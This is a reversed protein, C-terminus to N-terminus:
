RIKEPSYIIDELANRGQKDTIVFTFMWKNLRIGEAKVYPLKLLVKNWGKKLRIVSPKRSSFNENALDTENNIVKGSNIWVPPLIEEDNLWVKSGKRDWCGADPAKDCESRGYNQFEILAGAYQEIPSYVYTYAYATSNIQPSEFLSPIVSGWTHKLYHAAGIADKTGFEKGDFKYKESIFIEPPFVASSDGNNPFADTIRWKVDSQKVYPIKEDILSHDKHFLFRREWDVFDNFEENRLPLSTGGKEIYQGGGGRWARENTALVSAYLNNQSVIEDQSPLKRDNWFCCIAGAIEPSGKSSYYISSKYIGILDAFVDFHNAYNYRCDINPIGDVKSGATAWMQTMDFAHKSIDVGNIKNWCVVRKGLAHVKAIMEDLFTSDTIAVEDGGIHVFPSEKFTEVVDDLVDFLIKKGRETQMDVGMARVFAASHGPMDIEPIITVGHKKAVEIVRRCDDYSYFKGEDRTMFHASTLDPYKDVAYRWAQNETLHWHFTNVKFRSLLEIQKVLEDISVYSRGTDHMFGRVKFAPWDVIEVAEIEKAGNTGEILQNLTQVARIVGTSTVADICIGNRHVKLSYAENLYGYLEYDYMGPISDVITVIVPVGDTTLNCGNSVFFDKLLETETSDTISINGGLNFAGKKIEVSKPMPMLHEVKAYLPFITLIFIVVFSLQFKM